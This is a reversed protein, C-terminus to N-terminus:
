VWMKSTKQFYNTSYLFIILQLLTWVMAEKSYEEADKKALVKILYRNKIKIWSFWIM